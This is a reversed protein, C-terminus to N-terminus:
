CSIVLQLGQARQACLSKNHGALVSRRSCTTRVAPPTERRNKESVNKLAELKEIENM